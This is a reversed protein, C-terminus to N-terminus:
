IILNKTSIKVKSASPLSDTVCLTVAEKYQATPQARSVSRSLEYTSTTSGTKVPGLRVVTNVETAKNESQDVYFKREYRFELRTAPNTQLSAMRNVVTVDNLGNIYKNTEILRGQLRRQELSILELLLLRRECSLNCLETIMKM